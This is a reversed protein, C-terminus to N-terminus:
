RMWGNRTRTCRRWSPCTSGCRSTAGCGATSCSSCRRLAHPSAAATPLSSTVPPPSSHSWMLPPRPYLWSAAHWVSCPHPRPKCRHGSIKCRCRCRPPDSEGCSLWTSSTSPLRHTGSACGLRPPLSRTTAPTQVSHPPPSTSQLPLPPSSLRKGEAEPELVVKDADKVLHSDKLLAAVTDLDTPKADFVTKPHLLRAARWVLAGTWRVGFRGEWASQLNAGFEKGGDTDGDSALREAIGHIKEIYPLVLHATPHTRTSLAHVMHDVEKFVNRAANVTPMDSTILDVNVMFDAYALATMGLATRSLDRVTPHIQLLRELQYPQTLWRTGSQSKPKLKETGAATQARELAELRKTSGLLTTSISNCATFLASLWPTADVAAKVALMASHILCRVTNPFMAQLTPANDFICAALHDQTIGYEGLATTILSRVHDVSLNGRPNRLAVRLSTLEFKASLYHLAIGVYGSRGASTWADAQLAVMAGSAVHDAVKSAARVKLDSYLRQVARTITARSLGKSADKGRMSRILLRGGVSDFFGLPLGGVAVVKAAMEVPLGPRLYTMLAGEDEGRGRKAGVGGGTVEPRAFYGVQWHHQREVVLEHPAHTKLFSEINFMGYDTTRVVETKTEAKTGTVTTYTVLAESPSKFVVMDQYTERKTKCERRIVLSPKDGTIVVPDGRYHFVLGGFLVTGKPAAPAAM